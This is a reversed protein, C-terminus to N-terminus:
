DGAAVAASLPTLAEAKVSFQDINEQYPVCDTRYNLDRFSFNKTLIDKLEQVLECDGRGMFYPHTTNVSVPTWRAQVTGATNADSGPSLSYFDLDVLANRGPISPGNPCGRASVKVDNKRAGLHVLLARIKEELGDCSYLATVGWYTLNAHRHVWTGTVVAGADSGDEAASVLPLAILAFCAAAAALVGLRKRHQM